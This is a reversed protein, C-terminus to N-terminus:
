PHPHESGTLDDPHLPHPPDNRTDIFLKGDTGLVALTVDGASFVGQKRLEDYLWAEDLGVAKLNSAVIKGDYILETGLGKYDTPLHLDKPTVPEHQSKKLVSLAGDTELIAFEVENLDWVGKERLQTLLDDYRYRNKAMNQELIRGNQIVLVPEGGEVRAWWRSKLATWQALLTLVTWAMLGVFHPWARTQLDVSLTGALDGITIGTIFDFFTLKGIQQKGLLNAYILLTFFAIVSRALVLWALDM